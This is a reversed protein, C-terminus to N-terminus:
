TGLNYVHVQKLHYCWRQDFIVAITNDLQFNYYRQGNDKQYLKSSLIVAFNM